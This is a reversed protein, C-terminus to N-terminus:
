RRSIPLYRPHTFLVNKSVARLTVDSPSSPTTLLVPLKRHVVSLPHLLGSVVSLCPKSHLNRYWFVPVGSCHTLGNAKMWFCM